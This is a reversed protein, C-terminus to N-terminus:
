TTLEQQHPFLDFWTSMGCKDCKMCYQGRGPPFGDNKITQPNLPSHCSFCGWRAAIGANQYKPFTALMM